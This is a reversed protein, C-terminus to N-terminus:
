FAVTCDKLDFSLAEITLCGCPLHNCVGGGIRVKEKARDDGIDVWLVNGQATTECRRLFRGGRERVLKVIHAAVSPKDRKKAHLYRDQHRKVLLRFARNGSHSNTAGGRGCLVDESKIESIYDIKPPAMWHPPYHPYAIVTTPAGYSYQIYPASGHSEFSAPHVAYPYPPHNSYSSDSSQTPAMMPHHYPYHYTPAEPPASTYRIPQPAYNEQQYSASRQPEHPHSYPSQYLHNHSLMGEAITQKHNDRPPSRFHIGQERNFIEGVNRADSM